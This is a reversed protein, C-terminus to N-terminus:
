SVPNSRNEAKAKLEKELRIATPTTSLGGYGTCRIEYPLSRGTQDMATIVEDLPIVADVGALAMNASALANVGAMINKGLCPVEVRNAVPDCALGFINQLAMSAADFSEKLSGGAMQVLAAAAMGTASGCEAQCGALEAAFTSKRAIFVGILGAVLMAKAMETYDLGMEKGTTIITGPLTACSGATPAAVIVGLSSKVEMMAMTAAVIKNVLPDGILRGSKMAREILHSQQGILRDSYENGELGGRISHDMTEVIEQMMSLVKDVSFGSRQSEYFAAAEWPLMGKGERLAEEASLFPVKLNKRSLVPMVPGACHTRGNIAMQGLQEALDELPGASSKINLLCRKGNESFRSHDVRGSAELLESVKKEKSADLPDIFLFAEHCDGLASISFGNFSTFEIAGGGTSIAVMDISEGDSATLRMKYTNPHDNEYPAVIFELQLGSDRAIELADKMREDEMRFGLFGAALGMASGQGDFTTALSGKPDFEFVAKKLPKGLIDRAMTAIRVSAATHSSSPGRMVPGIVDNFISPAQKEM